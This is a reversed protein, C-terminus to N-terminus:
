LLGVDCPPLFPIISRQTCAVLLRGNVPLMSWILQGLEDNYCLLARQLTRSKDNYINGSTCTFTAGCAAGFGFRFALWGLEPGQIKFMHLLDPIRGYM